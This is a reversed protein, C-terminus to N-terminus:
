PIKKQPSVIKFLGEFEELRGECLVARPKQMVDAKQITM